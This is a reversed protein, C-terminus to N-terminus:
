VGNARCGIGDASKRFPSSIWGALAQVMMMCAPSMTRYVCAVTTRQLLKTSRPLYDDYWSDSLRTEVLHPPLDTRHKHCRRSYTNISPPNLAPNNEQYKRRRNYSLISGPLQYPNRLLNLSTSSPHEALNSEFNMHKLGSM